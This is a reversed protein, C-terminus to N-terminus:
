FLVFKIWKKNKISAGGVALVRGLVLIRNLYSIPPSHLCSAPSTLSAYCSPGASVSATPPRPTYWQASLRWASVRQRSVRPSWVGGVDSLEVDSSWWPSRLDHSEYRRFRFDATVVLSRADGPLTLRKPSMKATQTSYQLQMHLHRIGFTSCM